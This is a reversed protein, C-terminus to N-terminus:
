ARVMGLKKPWSEGKPTIVFMVRIDKVPRRKSKGEVKIHNVDWWKKVFDSIRYKRDLNNYGFYSNFYPDAIRLSAEKKDVRTVVSYHGKDEDENEYFDGQWEVGVPFNFKAVISNLDNITAKQKRWFSFAGKGAIKSARAMDKIDVGFERIKNQVRISRILKTQAVKVGVFSLLMELTAPGCSYNSIEKVREMKPFPKGKVKDELQLLRKALGRTKRNKELHM